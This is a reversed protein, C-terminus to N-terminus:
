RLAPYYADITVLQAPTLQGDVCQLLLRPKYIMSQVGIEKVRQLAKNDDVSPWDLSDWIVDIVPYEPGDFYVGNIRFYACEIYVTTFRTMSFGVNGYQPFTPNLEGRFTKLNLMTAIRTDDNILRKWISMDFNYGIPTVPVLM